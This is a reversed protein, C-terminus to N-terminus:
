RRGGDGGDDHLVPPEISQPAPLKEKEPDPPPEQDEGERLWGPLAGAMRGDEHLQALDQKAADVETRAQRLRDLVRDWEPKIQNNRVFDDTESYFRQRLETSRQELEKVDDAAQRWRLRIELARNRWYAEDRVAGQEAAPAAAAAAPAAAGKKKEKPDAVTIQGKRAYQPLTKDTIVAVPKGARARREREAKAAEALTVPGGDEVGPDVVVAEDDRAPATERVPQQPAPKQPEAPKPAAAPPPPPPTARTVPEPKGSCGALALLAVFLPPGTKKLGAM